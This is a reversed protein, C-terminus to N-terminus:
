LSFVLGLLKHFIEYKRRCVEYKTTKAKKSKENHEDPEKPAPRKHPYAKLYAELIGNIVFNKKKGIVKIRCKPSPLILFFLPKKDYEVHLVYFFM